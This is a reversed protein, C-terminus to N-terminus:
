DINEKFFNGDNIWMQTTLAVLDELPVQMEEAKIKWRKQAEIVYLEGKNSWAGPM